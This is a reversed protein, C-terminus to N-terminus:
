IVPPIQNIMLQLSGEQRGDIALNIAYVGAKEIKLNEIDLIFYAAGSPLEPHIDVDLTGKLPTLLIHGDEDVLHVIIEHKGKEIKQFRLKLAIACQPHIYPFELADISDFIGFVSLRGGKDTASDCLAFVEINM